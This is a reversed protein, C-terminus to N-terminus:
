IPLQTTALHHYGLRRSGRSYVPWSLRSLGLTDGLLTLLTLRLFFVQAIFVAKYTSDAYLM